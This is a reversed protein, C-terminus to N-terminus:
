DIDPPFKVTITYGGGGKSSGGGVASLIVALRERDQANTVMQGAAAQRAGTSSLGLDQLKSITQNVHPKTRQFVQKAM